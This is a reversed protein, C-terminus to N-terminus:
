AAEPTDDDPDFDPDPVGVSMFINSDIVRTPTWGDTNDISIAPLLGFETIAGATEEYSEPLYNEDLEIVLTEAVVLWDALTLHAVWKRHRGIGVAEGEQPEAVGEADAYGAPYFDPNGGEDALYGFQYQDDGETEFWEGPMPKAYPGHDPAKRFPGMSEIEKETGLIDASYILYIFANDPIKGHETTKV